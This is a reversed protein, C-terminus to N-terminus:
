PRAGILTQGRPEPLEIVARRGDTELEIQRDGISTVLSEGIRDGVLVRRITGSVRVIARSQGREVITAVLTVDQRPKLESTPPPPPPPAIAVPETLIEKWIPEFSAIDLTERSLSKTTASVGSWDPVETTHIPDLPWFVWVGSAITAVSVVVLALRDTNAKM